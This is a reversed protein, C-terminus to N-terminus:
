IPVGHDLKGQMLSRSRLDCAMRDFNSEKCRTRVMRLECIGSNTSGDARIYELVECSAVLKTCAML